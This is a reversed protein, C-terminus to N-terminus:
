EPDAVDLYIFRVDLGVDQLKRANEEGVEILVDAMLVTAGESALRRSHALGQGRAGGTVLVIRGLFRQLADAATGKMNRMGRSQPWPKWGHWNRTRTQWIRIGITVFLM